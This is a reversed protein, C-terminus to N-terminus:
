KGALIVKGAFLTDAVHFHFRSVKIASVRSHAPSVRDGGGLTGNRNKGSVVQALVVASEPAQGQNGIRNDAQLTNRLVHHLAVLLEKSGSEM